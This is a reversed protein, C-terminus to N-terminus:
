APAAAPEVLGRVERLATWAALAVAEQLAKWAEPALSVVVEVTV